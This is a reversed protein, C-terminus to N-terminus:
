AGAEPEYHGMERWQDSQGDHRVIVGDTTVFRDSMGSGDIAETAAYDVLGSGHLIDEWVNDGDYENLSEILRQRQQQVPRVLKRHRHPQDFDIHSGIM